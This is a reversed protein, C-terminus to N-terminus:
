APQGAGRRGQRQMRQFDRGFTEMSVAKSFHFGQVSFQEFPVPRGLHFGQAVDCSRARLYELQRATEVGEAVVNINLSRALAIIAQAVAADNASDPLQSVFVRDIKLTSIPFKTIYSLSSFGVGFDDVAISVGMARLQTLREVTDATHAMLVGETIELELHAPELGSERLSRQVLELLDPQRFQRPSLNVAVRLPRGTRQQLLKAERCATALVWAGIEVILGSEEAVPIFDAPSVAGRQPNNWRLLAEMGIVEGSVQPQYHLRFEGLKLAQRMAGELDMKHKAAIEMDRSFLRYCHRGEAKARYMASDANMLLLQLEEGDDPYRSIGISPTIFLEHGGVQIPASIREVLNAAVREIGADNGADCLVVAFEDGGMRAVTDSGRVCALIREAVIKLLQDGVHHGLSDNVRKFHDLDIMLVAVKGRERKAHQIASHMRDQLLTRNPLGTLFDHHAVHQTYDERRKRETIDYAIGLFGSIEGHEDRLATVALNVPFHSGDKRIYSWEHEEAIGFRAKHAFVEFGPEITKGLENSLEAARAAVEQPDHILASKANGVLEEAKYWLMREAAPNVATILGEANTAIISFPAANLMAERLHNARAVSQEASRRETLDRSIKSFGLLRGEEDRIANIVVNAWFREGHKRLRWGEEEFRGTEKAIELEHAPKGARQDEETYFVSFHRGIIERSGYGKILMAGRNWSVINGDVDLMFIGYDAVNEVILRFRQDLQHALQEAERRETIDTFSAIVVQREDAVNSESLATNISIWRLAGDPRHVGMVVGSEALGTRLTRAPPHDAAPWDSGDAHIAKWQRDPPGVWRADGADLGLIRRSAPNSALIDANGDQLVLGEQLSEVVSRYRGETAALRQALSRIRMRLWAATAAVLLGVLLFGLLLGHRIPAYLDAADLQVLLALGTAGVPGYAAIDAKGKGQGVAVHDTGAAGDLAMRILRSEDSGLGQLLRPTAGDRTPLCAPGASSLGCLSVAGSSGLEATSLLMNQLAPLAREAVLEGVRGSADHMEIRNRLVLGNRWALSTLGPQPAQVLLELDTAPIAAGAAALPSGDNALLVIGDFGLQQIDSLESQLGLRSGRDGPKGALSRMARLVSAQSSVAAARSTRQDLVLTLLNARAKQTMQLNRNLTEAGQTRLVWIGTLASLLAVIVLATTGVLVIEHEEGEASQPDSWAQWLAVSLLLMGVATHLAMQNLPYWSYLPELKLAYGFVALMGIGFPLVSLVRAIAAAASRRRLPLLLASASALIFCLTTSLSMQGPSPNGTTNWGHLQPLDIGLPVGGAIQALNLLALTLVLTACALGARRWSQAKDSVRAILAAGLLAFSLATNFVMAALGPLVSTLLAIRGVWGLMVTAGLAILVASLIQVLRASRKM